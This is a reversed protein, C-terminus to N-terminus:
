EAPVLGHGISNVQDPRFAGGFSRGVLAQAEGGIVLVIVTLSVKDILGFSPM